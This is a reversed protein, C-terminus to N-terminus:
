LSRFAGPALPTRIVVSGSAGDPVPEGDEGLIAFAYGPVPFGASGKRRRLDGLAFCSASRADLSRDHNAGDFGRRLRCGTALIIRPRESRHFRFSSFGINQKM